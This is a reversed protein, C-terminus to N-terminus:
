YYVAFYNMKQNRFFVNSSLIDASTAFNYPVINM